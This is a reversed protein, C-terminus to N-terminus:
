QLLHNYKYREDLEAWFIELQLLAEPWRQHGNRGIMDNVVFNGNNTLAEKVNDFLFELSTV